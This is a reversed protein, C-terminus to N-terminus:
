LDSSCKENKKWVLKFDEFRRKIEGQLGMKFYDNEKDLIYLIIHHAGILALDAWDHQASEDFTIQGTEGIKMRSFLASATGHVQLTPNYYCLSYLGELGVERAMSLLDLESWSLRTRRTGCKKCVVEQYKEKAKKYSDQIEEIMETPLEKALLSKAHNFQKGRHVHYYDLFEGAKHPYKAIYGLTVAREYLGRLLKTAGVGYGNGSLLLIEMFEEVCLRGLFFVVRDAPSNIQVQRIFTKDLTEFLPRLKETLLPQRKAFAQWEGPIGFQIDIHQVM